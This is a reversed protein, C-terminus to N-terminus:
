AGYITCPCEKGSMGIDSLKRTPLNEVVEGNPIIGNYVIDSGPDSHIAPVGGDDSFENGVM